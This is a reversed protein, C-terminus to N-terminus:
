EEEFSYASETVINVAKKHKFGRLRAKYKQLKRELKDIAMDISKFMDDSMVSSSLVNGYVNLHIEALHKSHGAKIYDLVVNCDIIGKYFKELKLIENNVFIKLRDTAKFHRATINIQM